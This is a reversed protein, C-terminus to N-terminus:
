GIGLVKKHTKKTTEMAVTAVKFIGFTTQVDLTNLLITKFLSFQFKFRSCSLLPPPIKKVYM